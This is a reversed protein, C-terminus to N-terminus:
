TRVETFKQLDAAPVASYDLSAVRSGWWQPVRTHEIVIDSLLAVCTKSLPLDSLQKTLAVAFCALSDTSTTLSNSHVLTCAFVSLSVFWPIRAFIHDHQFCVVSRRVDIQLTAHCEFELLARM